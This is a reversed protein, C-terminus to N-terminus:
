RAGTTVVSGPWGRASSRVQRIAAQQAAEPTAPGRGEAVHGIAPSRLLWEVDRPGEAGPRVTVVASVRGITCRHSGPATARWLDPPLNM